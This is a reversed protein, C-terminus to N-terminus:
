PNTIKLYSDQLVGSWEVRNPVLGDEVLKVLITKAESKNTQLSLQRSTSSYFRNDWVPVNVDDEFYFTVVQQNNQHSLLNGSMFVEGRDLLLFDDALSEIENLLHTSILIGKGQNKLDLILKLIIEKIEIDLGNFPEDLILFDPDSLIAQAIGLRQKMGMSFQSVKKDAASDLGVLKLTEAISVQSIKLKSLIELNKKATMFEYFDGSEILYGCHKRLESFSKLQHDNLFVEGGDVPILGAMSRMCTSKGAGNPGLLALIKGSHIEFDIGKLIAQKGLSVQLNKIELKSM